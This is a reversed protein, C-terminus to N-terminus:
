FSIFFYLQLSIIKKRMRNALKSTTFFFLAIIISDLCFIMRIFEQRFIIIVDKDKIVITELKVTTKNTQDREIACLTM